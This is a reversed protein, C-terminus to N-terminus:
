FQKLFRMDNELFFRIDNVGYKIMAIREIGMGFAFGSYVEPDYDVFKFVGPDVMGAGSIELWGTGKCIRCGKAGASLARYTTSLAPNPLRSFVRGSASKPTRGSCKQAFTLLTGKLQAFTVHKDVYLGEVQHFVPSHTADQEDCRYCRGTSIMRVPPRQKEMVRIQVASTQTRLLHDGGLSFTDQMDRAPHDHPFNLAEFNYYDTEIDPGTVLSFGMGHFVDKIEDIVLTLPHKRGLWLPRGPLTYDPREAPAVAGALV